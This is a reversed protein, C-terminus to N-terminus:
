RKQRARWSKEEPNAASRNYHTLRNPHALLLSRHALKRGALPALDGSFRVAVRIAVPSKNNRNSLTKEQTKM